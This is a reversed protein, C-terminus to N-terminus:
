DAAAHGGGHIMSVVHSLEPLLIRELGLRCASPSGPLAFVVTRDHVGACARSTMARTGIEENSLHRFLEGFGPLSRTCFRAVAEPAQDRPSVGTGGTIVIADVGIAVLEGLAKLIGAEDDPVIRREVIEHGADRLGACLLSGSIDDDQSRTDSATVIAVRIAPM